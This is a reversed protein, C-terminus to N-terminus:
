GVVGPLVEQACRKAAIECYREEIEIGIAKRGLNKAALLTSGSGMFPDLITIAGVVKEICWQMVPIPKQTPHFRDERFSMFMGKWQHRILRVAGPLNTWALEADAYGNSGTEKDWVLWCSSPGLNFYNGGWIIARTTRSIALRLLYDDAPMADWNMRPYQRSPHLSKGDQRGGRSVDSAGIGYPPDTLLLYASVHLVIERCDGHYITVWDDQYYPKV